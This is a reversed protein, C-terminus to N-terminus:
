SISNLVGSLILLVNDLIIYHIFIINNIWIVTHHRWLMRDASIICWITDICWARESYSLFFPPWRVNQLTIDMEFKDYKSWKQSMRALPWNLHRYSSTMVDPWLVHAMYDYRRKMGNWFIFHFHPDYAM